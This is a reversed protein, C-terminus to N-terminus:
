RFSILAGLVFSEFIIHLGVDSYNTGLGYVYVSKMYSYGEKMGGEGDGYGTGCSGKNYQLVKIHWLLGTLGVYLGDTSRVTWAGGIGVTM